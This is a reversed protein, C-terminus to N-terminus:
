AASRYGPFFREDAHTCNILLEAYAARDLIAGLIWTNRTETAWGRKYRALGDDPDERLGAQGGWNIWRVIDRLSEIAFRDLAYSARMRYGDETFAALHAHAVEGQIVLVQAGVTVGRVTARLMVIDELSFLTRFSSETFAHLTTLGRRKVLEGYLAVWDDLYALPRWCMELELNRYGKRAEARHHASAIQAVPIALDAIFHKKFPRALDFHGNFRTVDFSAFPDSVLTLTVLGGSRLADVDDPLADWNSCSFMPYCGVVDERTSGPIPRRLAWGDCRPLFM